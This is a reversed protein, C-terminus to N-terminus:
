SYYVSDDERRIGAMVMHFEQGALIGELAASKTTVLCLLNRQDALQFRAEYYGVSSSTYITDHGRLGNNDIAANERIMSYEDYQGLIERLVEDTRGDNSFSLRVSYAQDKPVIFVGFDDVLEPDSNLYFGEPITISAGPMHFRGGMFRLM